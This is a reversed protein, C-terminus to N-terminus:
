VGRILLVWGEASANESAFTITGNAQTTVVAALHDDDHVDGMTFVGVIDGFGFTHTDDDTIATFHYCSLRLGAFKHITGTTSIVDSTASVFGGFFSDTPVFGATGQTSITAM